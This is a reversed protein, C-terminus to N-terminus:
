LVASYRNILSHESAVRRINLAQNEEKNCMAWTGYTGFWCEGVLQEWLLDTVLCLCRIYRLFFM